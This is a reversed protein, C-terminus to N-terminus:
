HPQHRVGVGVNHLTDARFKNRKTDSDFRTGLKSAIAMMGLCGLGDKLVWSIAAAGPLAIAADLGVSSLLAKTSLVYSASGVIGQLAVWLYYDRYDRGM